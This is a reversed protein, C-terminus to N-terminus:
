SLNEKDQNRKDRLKKVGYMAAAGLLLSVGGDLPMSTGGGDIPVEDCDDVCGGPGQGYSSTYSLCALLIILGIGIRGM